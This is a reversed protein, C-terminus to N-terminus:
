PDYVEHVQIGKFSQMNIVIGDEAQAQGELSHGFGKAAVTFRSYTGMMKLHRSVVFTISQLVFYSPQVMHM